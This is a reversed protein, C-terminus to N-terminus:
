DHHVGPIRFRAAFILQGAALTARAERESAAVVTIYKSQQRSFFRWVFCPRRNRM